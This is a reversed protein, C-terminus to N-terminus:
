ARKSGEVYTVGETEALVRAARLGAAMLLDRIADGTLASPPRRRLASFLGATSEGEIAVIRGGTRVVRLAESVVDAPHEGSVGLSKSLVVIDFAGSEAATSSFSRQEFEVLTGADAAATEVSRQADPSPDVVLTRGNLGTVAAVAAALRSDAAGVVLVQSGPKAGIMALATHHIPLGAGDGQDSGMKLGLLRAMAGTLPRLFNM